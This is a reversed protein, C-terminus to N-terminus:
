FLGVLRALFMPTSNTVSEHINLRRVTYRDDECCVLGRRTIFALRYGTGKVQEIVERTFYGNPYSFVPVTKEFRRDVMDKSTQIERQAEDQSVQTLLQHEAGHGGFVVGEQSMIKVQEWDLFGDIEGAEDMDAELENALGKLTSEMLSPATGKQRSIAQIIAPRPDDDPLGLISELHIPALLERIRLARASDARVTMVASVALHVLAEQWFLRKRGIYNAPLFVVAPLGHRLLVPLANTFNDKWGDDFTILCSSDPFPVRREMRGAFEELSLVVFRRKLFAMQQAFTDRDVVIGPHSGTRRREETTLVRHYMLVVAKRRFVIAQWMWLVGLGYLVYAVVTKAAYKVCESATM